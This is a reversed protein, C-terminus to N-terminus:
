PKSSKMVKPTSSMARTAFDFLWYLIHEPVAVAAIKGIRVAVEPFNSKGFVPFEVVITTKYNRLLRMAVAAKGFM